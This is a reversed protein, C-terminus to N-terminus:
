DPIVLKVEGTPGTVPVQRTVWAENAYLTVASIQGNDRITAPAALAVEVSMSLTLIATKIIMRDIM